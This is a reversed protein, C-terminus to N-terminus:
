LLTGSVLKYNSAKHVQGKNCKQMLLIIQFWDSLIKFHHTTQFINDHASTTDYIFHLASRFNESLYRM